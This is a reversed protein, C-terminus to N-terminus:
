KCSLNHHGLLEMSSVSNDCIHCENVLLTELEGCTAALHLSGPQRAPSKPKVRMSLQQLQPLASDSPRIGAPTLAFVEPRPGQRGKWQQPAASLRSTSEMHSGCLWGPLPCPLNELLCQSWSVLYLTYHKPVKILNLGKCIERIQMFGLDELLFESCSDRGLYQMVLSITRDWSLIGFILM